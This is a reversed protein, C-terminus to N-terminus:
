DYPNVEEQLFEQLGNWQGNGHVWYDCFRDYQEQACQVKYTHEHIKHQINYLSNLISRAFHADVDPIENFREDRFTFFLENELFDATKQISDEFDQWWFLRSYVDQLPCKRSDIM